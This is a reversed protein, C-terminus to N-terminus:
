DRIVRTVGVAFLSILLWGMGVFFFQVAELWGTTNWVKAVGFDGIPLFTDIAYYVASDVGFAPPPKVDGVYTISGRGLWVLATLVIIMLLAWAGAQWPRYGYGITIGLLKRWARQGNLGNKPRSKEKAIGV